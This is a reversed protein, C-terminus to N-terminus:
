VAKKRLRAFRSVVHVWWPSLRGIVKGEWIVKRLEAADHFAPLELCAVGIEFAAHADSGATGPLKHRTAFAQAQRNPGPGLCRANFTEIAELGPLIELLQEKKWAGNRPRDFPHSISIFAGQAQLRRITEQPTLGGPIEESVFFALIEGQTTYIEEGVIVLEPALAQAALAGRITNHDTVAVKGLGRKMAACILDRPTTSSDGSATTHTHFDVLM